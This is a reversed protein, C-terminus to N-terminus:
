SLAQALAAQGLQIGSGCFSQSYYISVTGKLWPSQLVKCATAYLHYAVLLGQIEWQPQTCSLGKRACPLSSLGETTVSSVKAPNPACTLLHQQGTVEHKPGAKVWM